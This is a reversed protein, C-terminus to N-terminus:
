DVHASFRQRRSVNRWLAQEYLKAVWENATDESVFNRLFQRIKELTKGVLPHTMKIKEIKSDLYHRKGDLTSRGYVHLDNDLALEMVEDITLDTFTHVTGAEDAFQLEWQGTDENFVASGSLEPSGVAKNKKFTYYRVGNEFDQEARTRADKDNEYGGKTASKNLRDGSYRLKPENTVWAANDWYKFGHQLFHEVYREDTKVGFLDLFQEVFQRLWGKAQKKSTQKQYAVEEEVWQRFKDNSYMEAIFEALDVNDSEKFSAGYPVGEQTALYRPPFRNPDRIKQGRVVNLIEKATEIFRVENDTLGYDKFSVTGGNAVDDLFHKYRITMRATYAHTAEHLLTRAM